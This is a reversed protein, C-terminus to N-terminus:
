VEMLKLKRKKNAITREQAEQEALASEQSVKALEDLKSRVSVSTQTYAPFPTPSIEFLNTNVLTRIPIDGEYDWEDGGAPVSFGFSVGKVHRKEIKEHAYQDYHTNGLKLDFRLGVDDEWIELNDDSSGLIIDSNHNWLATIISSKLSNAFTGKRIKERFGGLDESLSEFRAAYGSITKEGEETSRIELDTTSITRIEKEVRIVRERIQYSPVNVGKIFHPM